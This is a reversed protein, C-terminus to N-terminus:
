VEVVVPLVMPRRRLREYVLKALDDHLIQQLLDVERIEEKAARRLSKEVGGRIEEVIEGAEDLFPVGRFIVEPEAVSRGDQEAITAVVVFIGDASLMRRDRLAVDAMEGIEVGDVFVMGAQERAGFRAGREDIELPLGNDGQFIDQPDVGVDEALEAHLRLRKFDGHVPMVYRPKLLNLMLKVEEAYGHGSAHVPADRPTIVDCGIHYLRDITENVARENGPVPTASFVVTDGRRLEVQPHDRYAMRRLASLPEGQSGTSIIVIREDPFDGIERLGVLIGDPVEIHGLTRGIAVNKRMSRGVLTVKRDLAHAADIVQQVRHINSAFSTVVIRGECREFVEELHRGVVSESPSFGERDVNTSDGCLLLVGERGLEALRSIDAPQGDVPTQDFKYDGTLLVTGLDTGLAVACSDPISHTMHVLELSFPGLELIEGPALESLEVKKLKHEELKSRAMAITLAGSYVPPADEGLERLVWPLAGLHDEHGHTIVIAEIERAHERLYTFDPLVLDIGVMEPTPFRLGVDVVVIRGDHEVVTMNKGIEGVGGLPLVRIKSM